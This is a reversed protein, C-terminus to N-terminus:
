WDNPSTMLIVGAAKIEWIITRAGMEPQTLLNIIGGPPCKFLWHGMIEVTFIHKKTTTKKVTVTACLFIM